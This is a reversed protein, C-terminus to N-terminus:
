LYDNNKNNAQKILKHINEFAEGKVERKFYGDIDNMSRYDDWLTNHIPEIQSLLEKPTIKATSLSNIVDDTTHGDYPEARTRIKINFRHWYRNEYHFSITKVGARTPLHCVFLFWGGGFMISGDSYLKSKYCRSPMVKALLTTFALRMDYLSEYSHYGDTLKEVDDDNLYVMDEILSQVDKRKPRVIRPRSAWIKKFINM